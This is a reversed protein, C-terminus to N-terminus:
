WFVLISDDRGVSNLEIVSHCALGSEVLSFAMVGLKQYVSKMGVILIIHRHCSLRHFDPRERCCLSELGRFATFLKSLM